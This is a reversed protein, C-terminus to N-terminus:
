QGNQPERDPQDDAAIEVHRVCHQPAHPETQWDGDLLEAYALKDLSLCRWIGAGTGPQPGRGSEGGYQYCFVRYEGPENYGLVHPCLLRRTGEYMVAMPRRDCVASFVLRHVEEPSQLDGFGPVAM